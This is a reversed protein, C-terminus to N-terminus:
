SPSTDKARPGSSLALITAPSPNSGVVKLNHAETWTNLVLSKARNQALNTGNSQTEVGLCKYKSRITVCELRTGNRGVVRVDPMLFNALEDTLQSCTLTTQGTLSATMSAIANVVNIVDSDILELVAVLPKPGLAPIAGAGSVADGYL